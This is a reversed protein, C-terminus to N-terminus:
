IDMQVFDKRAFDGTKSSVAAYITQYEEKDPIIFVRNKLSPIDVSPIMNKNNKAENNGLITPLKYFFKLDSDISDILLKKSYFVM